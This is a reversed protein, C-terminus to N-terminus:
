PKEATGNQQDWASLLAKLQGVMGGDMASPSSSAASQSEKENAAGKEKSDPQSNRQASLQRKAEERRRA